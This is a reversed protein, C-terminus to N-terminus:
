QDENKSLIEKEELIQSCPSCKSSFSWFLRTPQFDQFQSRCASKSRPPSTSISAEQRGTGGKDTEVFPSPSQRDELFLCPFHSTETTYLDFHQFNWCALNGSFYLCFPAEPARVELVPKTGGLLM